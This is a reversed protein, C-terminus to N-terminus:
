PTMGKKAKLQNLLIALTVKIMYHLTRLYRISSHGVLRKRMEVPVEKLRLGYRKAIVISEPEPFDTPYCEAFVRIAKKNFARFGSTSDTVAYGTLASILRAFFHIGIRRVFSSRYGLYPGIFRSGLAIDTEGRLLPDILAPIFSPDHQGDGDVQLAVDYDNEVAYIFGTQVAGGIGLNFPLSVIEAKASEAEAGTEDTSGDDVVLIDVHPQRQRIETVTRGINGAENYAPVIVLIKQPTM